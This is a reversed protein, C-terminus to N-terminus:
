YFEGIESKWVEKIVNWDYKLATNRANESLRSCLDPNNLILKIKKAFEIKNDKEFLLGNMGDQILYPVGGVNTSIIPFGLAMAEIISVPHNDFNTSNIFISSNKSLDIWSKKELKGTLNFYRSLKLRNMEHIFKSQSGDKDPGIMTVHINPYEDKLLDVTKLVLLPNYTEHFSRVWILNPSAANRHLYPYNVVPIFNPICIVNTFKEEFISGLYKSPAIIKFSNNFYFDAIFNGKLKTPLNGGRLVPCYKIGKLKAIFGIILSYYFAGTSFTDILILNEKNALLAVSIMDILRFLKNKKTSTYKVKIGVDQLRIVFTEALSETLGHKSLFNGIYIIM